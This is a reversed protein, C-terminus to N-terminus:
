AAESLPQALARGALWGTTWAAQFNYGGTVGDVDLLEGAVYLGPQLRSEMTRFDVEKAPVGGCTVFEDKNLSKGSVDVTTSVLRNALDDRHARSLIAWRTDLPISAAAFLSEWLRAPLDAAPANSVRRGPCRERQAQLIATASAVSHGPLFSLNLPFHYDREALERAAWASIKLIAPGSLGRHTFLLPGIQRFRTGPISSEAECAVGALEHVWDADVDFTFLSPVPPQPTHGFAAAIRAGAPVRSGGTALLLRHCEFPGEATQIEFGSSTAKANLIGARSHLHVGAQEAAGLLLEVITESRNTRPFIRGDSETKLDVGRSTFWELTDSVGFHHLPGILPREGRPYRTSLQRADLCAHTVNCRGGGSRAVKTLYHASQEFVHVEARPNSEACTIAAFFGAAGGGAIAVTPPKM